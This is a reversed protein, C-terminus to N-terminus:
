LPEYLREVGEGWAWPWEKDEVYLQLQRQTLTPARVSALRDRAEGIMGGVIEGFDLQGATDPSKANPSVKYTLYGM